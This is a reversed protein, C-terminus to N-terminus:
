RPWGTLAAAITALVLGAEVPKPVVAYAGASLADRRLERSPDGTMLIVRLGRGLGCLRECADLGPGDPFWADLLALDLRLERALALAESRTASEFPLYGRGGLVRRLEARVGPHPDAILISGRIEM